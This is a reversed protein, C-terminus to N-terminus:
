RATANPKPSACRVTTAAFRSRKTDHSEMRKFYPLVERYSWGAAGM